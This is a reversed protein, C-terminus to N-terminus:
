SHHWHAINALIVENDENEGSEGERVGETEM